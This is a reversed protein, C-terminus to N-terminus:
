CHVADLIQRGNPIELTAYFRRGRGIKSSERVPLKTYVFYQSVIIMPAYVMSM